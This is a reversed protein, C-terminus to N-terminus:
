RRSARLVTSVASACARAATSSAVAFSARRNTSSAISFVAPLTSLPRTPGFSRLTPSRTLVPCPFTPTTASIRDSPRTPTSIPATRRTIAGSSRSRTSPDHNGVVDDLLHTLGGVQNADDALVDLELTGPGVIASGTGEVAAGMAVEGDDGLLSHEVAEHAVLRAVDEREEHLLQAHIIGRGHPLGRPAGADRDRLAGAGGGWVRALRQVLRHRRRGIPEAALQVLTRLGVAGALIQVRTVDREFLRLHLPEAVRRTPGREEIRHFSQAQTLVHQEFRAQDNFPIIARQDRPEAATQEERNVIQARPHHREASADEARSLGLIQVRGVCRDKVLALQEVVQVERLM